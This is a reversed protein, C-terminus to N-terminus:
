EPYSSTFFVDKIDDTGTRVHKRPKEIYWSTSAQKAPSLHFPPRYRSNSPTNELATGDKGATVGNITGRESSSTKMSDSPRRFQWQPLSIELETVFHGYNRTNRWLSPCKPNSYLEMNPATLTLGVRSGAKTDVGQLATM